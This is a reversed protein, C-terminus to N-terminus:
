AGAEERLAPKKPGFVRDLVDTAKTPGDTDSILKQFYRARERYVNDNILRDLVKSLRDSSVAQVPVVLGTQKEAIRAAVGPQDLSVPIALQPVGQSLSELVTNLGAHTICVSARKLIELQPVREVAIANAPVPGIQEPDVQDGLSVVLQFGKRRATAQIIARFIDASGNMLTGMSAYIVPEGSLREFPFDIEARGSGDYFPGTHYFSAPWYPNEFDFEQPCQTIWALKSITTSPSDCDLDLGARKAFARAVAASPSHDKVAQDVGAQNRARAAASDEHPWDYLYPPTYGSYDFHLAVAVHAYPIGLSIPALEVYYLVTDVVVADVAEAILLSPLCNLIAETRSAGGKRVAELMQKGQLKSLRRLEGTFSGVPFASTACPVFPVGASRVATEGDLFTIFVIEHGRSQVKRALTTLPNLHGSVPPCVFAVKMTLDNRYSFEHKWFRAEKKKDWTGYKSDLDVIGAYGVSPM